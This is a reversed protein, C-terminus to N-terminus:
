QGEERESDRYGRSRGELPLVRMGVKEKARSSVLLIFWLAM